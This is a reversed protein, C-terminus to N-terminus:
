CTDLVLWYCVRKLRYITMQSEQSGDGLFLKKINEGQKQSRARGESCYDLFTESDCNM